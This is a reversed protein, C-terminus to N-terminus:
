GLVQVNSSTILLRRPSSRAVALPLALTYRARTHPPPAPAGTAYSLIFWVTAMIILGVEFNEPDTPDFISLYNYWGGRPAYIEFNTWDTNIIIVMGVSAGLSMVVQPVTLFSM